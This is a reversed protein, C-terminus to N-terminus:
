EEPVVPKVEASEGKKIPCLIIASGDCEGVAWLVLEWTNMGISAIVPSGSDVAFKVADITNRIWPDTGVPTKSQRSNLILVPDQYLLRKEGRLLYNEHLYHTTSTVM